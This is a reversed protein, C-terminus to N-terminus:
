VPSKRSLFLQLLCSHVNPDLSRLHLYLFILVTFFFSWPSVTSCNWWTTYRCPQKVQQRNFWSCQTSSTLPVCKSILGWSSVFQTQTKYLIIQSFLDSTKKSSWYLLERWLDLDAFCYRNICVAILDMTNVGLTVCLVNQSATLLVSLIPSLVLQVSDRWSSVLGSGKFVQNWPTSFHASSAWFIAYLHLGRFCDEPSDAFQNRYSHVMFCDAYM